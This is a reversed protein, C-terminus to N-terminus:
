RALRRSVVVSGALQESPRRVKKYGKPIEFRLGGALPPSEDGRFIQPEPDATRTASAGTASFL